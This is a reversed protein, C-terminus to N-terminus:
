NGCHRKKSLTSVDRLCVTKLNYQIASRTMYKDLTWLMNGRRPLRRMEIPEDPNVTGKQASSSNKADFVHLV